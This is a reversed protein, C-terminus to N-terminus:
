QPTEIEQYIEDAAGLVDVPPDYGIIEATKLNIAIKPPDEFLQDLRRPKAGNLIKAITEAYFQGVYRWGAQSISLLFGAKVEDSGSQSFTPIQYSNIIQVLEPLSNMTVGNQLTVYIADVGKKGLEHFCKKVSEKALNLDSTHDITLCHVIEFGLEAAVGEVKDIAAYVKSEESDEYAVGLTQFGIIDYFIRVQREYRFPDVRAVVHDRGSDEVSAVIGAGIANSASIVVTPTQHQDNALDQGAWTGLALMIDIDQKTTLRDIVEAATQKRLADDWNASYHADTVFELYDSKINTALWQWFDKTQEGQQSPIDVTEVWGLDMLGEVTATFQAQYDIYEGGEYYGIRWKNGNNTTPDVRFEQAFASMNVFVVYISLLVIYKKVTKM